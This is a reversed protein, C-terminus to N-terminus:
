KGTPKFQRVFKVTELNLPKKMMLSLKLFNKIDRGSLEPNDKVINEADHVNLKIGSLASLTVWIKVQDPKSPIKYNLRAVCRSAIADDVDDPRNTTLFMVNSQYELVRLFVGVIANQMLDDGRTHVYVDAEDLLLIANWRNARRFITLLNSELEEAEVGLQSCQVSYLARQESEAYVEATLTKGVGPPGALLVVAGGTKGKVIDRFSSAKYEILLHVLDKLSQDLILKEIMKPDYVYEELCRVHIKLRIHKSLDFVAVNPHIPVEIKPREHNLDHDEEMPEDESKKRGSGMRELANVWFWTNLDVRRDSERSSDEREYFVDVVVRTPNGDRVMQIDCDRKGWNSNSKSSDDLEDVGIGSAIFQKGIKPVVDWYLKIDELYEKRLDDDELIFGKQALAEPATMGRCHEEKFEVSKEKHSGFEDYVLDMTVHEPYSWNGSRDKQAEHYEIEKVYYCVNSNKNIPDKTFIRRGPSEKIYNILISEFHQCKRAKVSHPSALCAEWAAIDKLVTQSGRINKRADFFDKYKKIDKQTLECIDINRCSRYNWATDRDEEIDLLKCVAQIGLEEAFKKTIQIHM